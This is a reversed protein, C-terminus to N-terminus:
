LVMVVTGVPLFELLSNRLRANGAVWVSYPVAEAAM